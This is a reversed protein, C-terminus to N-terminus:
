LIYGYKDANRHVQSPPSLVAFHEHLYRLVREQRTAEMWGFAFSLLLRVRYKRCWRQYVNMEVYRRSNEFFNSVTRIPCEPARPCQNMFFVKTQFDRTLNVKFNRREWFFKVTRLLVKSYWSHKTSFLRVSFLEILSRSIFYNKTGRLTSWAEM